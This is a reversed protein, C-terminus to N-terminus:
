KIRILNQGGIKRVEVIDERQLRKVMRWITTKPLKFHARLDTEFAEGGSDGLYQIAERDELRLQPRSQLIDAVDITRMEKKYTSKQGRKRRVILTTLAIVVVVVAVPWLMSFIDAPTQMSTQTTQIIAQEALRLAKSAYQEADVYRGQDFAEQAKKLEAQAEQVPIGESKAEDLAIEANKISISSQEKTGVVGTSYSVSQHGSNMTLIYQNDASTISIPISSMGIITADQPFKVSFIIPTEINLTWIAGEKDILDLAVYLINVDEAGLTDITAAGDIVLYDLLIDQGNTVIMDMYLQGLLPVTIRPVTSDVNLSYEVVTSGDDYITLFLTNPSYSAAACTPLLAVIVAALTITIWIREDTSSRNM